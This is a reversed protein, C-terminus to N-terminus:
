LVFFIAGGTGAELLSPVTDPTIPTPNKRLLPTFPTRFYVPLTTSGSQLLLHLLASPFFGHTCVVANPNKDRGTILRFGGPRTLYKM